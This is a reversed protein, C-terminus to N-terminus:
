VAADEGLQREYEDLMFKRLRKPARARTASEPALRKLVAVLPAYAVVLIVANSVIHVIDFYLGKVYYVIWYDGLRSPALNFACFLTDCCASLVGFVASGLVSIVVALPARGGKLCVSAVIALLPWYVFYLLVWSGFGYMATEVACFILTAPMAYAAGFASAYVVILLTVVEVNPVFALAMKFATLSAALLATRAIYVTTKYVGKRKINASIM